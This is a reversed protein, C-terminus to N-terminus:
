KKVRVGGNSRHGVQEPGRQNSPTAGADRRSGPGEELTLSPLQPQAGAPAADAAIVRASPVTGDAIRRLVRSASGGADNRPIKGGLRNRELLLWHLALFSLATHHHWGLWSRTEYHGLGTENKGQGHNQEIPWRATGARLMPTLGADAGANCELYKRKPKQDLTDTVLLWGEPRMRMKKWQFLVRLLAVRLRIPGKSADRIEQVTWAREPLEDAIEEATVLRPRGAGRIRLRELYAEQGRIRRRPLNVWVPTSAPVDFIYKEGEEWLWRHLQPVKGFEEDGTIWEHPFHDSRAHTIMEYGLEWGTRFVVDEPVGAQRRRPFDNAWEEPLYLRRDLFMHGKEGAYSLNEAVVCNEQKGLQGCYLRAVGVSKDGRKPFSTSDLIFIGRRSGLTQRVHRRHELVLAEADWPSRGIFNEMAQWDVGQDLAIPEISKRQLPGILGRLYSEFHERQAEHRFLHQYRRVFRRFEFISETLLSLAM